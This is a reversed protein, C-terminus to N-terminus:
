LLRFGQLLGHYVELPQKLIEQSWFRVDEKKIDDFERSSSTTENRTEIGIGSYGVIHQAHACIWNDGYWIKLQDPIPTWDAKRVLFMTAWSHVHSHLSQFGFPVEDKWADPHAGIVTGPTLAELLQSLYTVDFRVDDSLFMLHETSAQQAGFNWAPNVYLNTDSSVYVIKNSKVFELAASPDNDILIIEAVNPSHTLATIMETVFVGRWM